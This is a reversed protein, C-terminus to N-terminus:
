NNMNAFMNALNGLNGMPNDGGGNGGMGGLMQAMNALNGLPNNGDGGNGMLNGLGGLMKTIGEIGGAKEMVKQIVPALDPDNMYQMAAMPNKQVEQMINQIKASKEPDTMLSKIEPDSMLSSAMGMLDGMNPADGGKKNSSKSTKKEKKTPPEKWKKYEENSAADLNEIPVKISKAKGDWTFKIEYKALMEDYSEVKALTGNYKKGKKALGDIKVIQGILEYFSQESEASEYEDDKEDSVLDQAVDNDDPVQTEVEDADAKLDHDKEVKEDSDAGADALDHVTEKKELALVSHAAFAAVGCIAKLNFNM